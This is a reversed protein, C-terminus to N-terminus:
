IKLVPGGTDVAGAMHSRLTEINSVVLKFVYNPIMRDESLLQDVM